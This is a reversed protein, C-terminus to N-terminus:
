SRFSTEWSAGHSIQYLNLDERFRYQTKCMFQSTSIYTHILYYSREGHIRSWDNYNGGRFGLFGLDPLLLINRPPSSLVIPDISNSSCRSCNNTVLEVIVYASYRVRSSSSHNHMKSRIYTHEYALAISMDLSHQPISRRM